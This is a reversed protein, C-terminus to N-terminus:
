PHNVFIADVRGEPFHSPLVHSADGGMVALNSVSQLVMRTFIQYVRDHRLELAIWDASDEDAKAQEVIWEGGGAVYITDAIDKM